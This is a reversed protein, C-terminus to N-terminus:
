HSGEAALVRNGADDPFWEYVIFCLPDEDNRVFGEIASEPEILHPRLTGKWFAFRANGTHWVMREGIVAEVLAGPEARLFQRIEDSGVLEGKRARILGAEDWIEQLPLRTVIRLRPDV